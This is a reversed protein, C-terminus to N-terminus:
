AMENVISRTRKKPIRNRVIMGDSEYHGLGLTFGKYSVILHKTKRGLDLRLDKGSAFAKADETDLRLINKKALHGFNQIFANTPNFGFDCAAYGLEGNIPSKRISRNGVRVGKAYFLQVEDPLSIGFHREIYKRFNAEKHKIFAMM